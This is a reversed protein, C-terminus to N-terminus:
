IERKELEEQEEITKTALPRALMRSLGIEDGSIVSYGFTGNEIRELAQNIKQLLNNDREAMRLTLSTEQELVAIDSDDGTITANAKVTASVSNLAAANQNMIEEKQASLLQYFYALHEPCMYPESKKPVYKPPLEISKYDKKAAM